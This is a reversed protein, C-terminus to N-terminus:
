FSVVNELVDFIVFHSNEHSRSTRSFRGLNGLEDKVGVDVPVLACHAVYEASLRTSQRGDRYSLSNSFLTTFFFTLKLSTRGDISQM